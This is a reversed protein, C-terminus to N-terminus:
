ENQNLENHRDELIRSSETYNHYSEYYNQLIRGYYFTCIIEIIFISSEYQIYYSLIIFKYVFWILTMEKIKNYTIDYMYWMLASLILGFLADYFRFFILLIGSIFVSILNQYMSVYTNYIKSILSTNEVDDNELDDIVTQIFENNKTAYSAKDYNIKGRIIFMISLITMLVINNPMGIFIFSFMLPICEEYVKIFTLSLFDYLLTNSLFKQILYNFVKM